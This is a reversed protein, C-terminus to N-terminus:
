TDHFLVIGHNIRGIRRLILQLEQEPTMPNWDSAWVDAGFVVINRSQLRDLLAPTSAFGPFRFIPTTPEKRRRGYLALEDEEIGRDIQDEAAAIPLHNLLAHSHTHHGVSHGEALERRALAPYEAASRGILFFTAKVCEHKLADLVKPTTGPWPGDDFTLVLEKEHLPLSAPFEKHGVRPTTRANVIITRATGLAAPNGPCPEAWVASHLLIGAGALAFLRIM